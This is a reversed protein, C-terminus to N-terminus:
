HSLSMQFHLFEGKIKQYSRYPYPLSEGTDFIIREKSIQRIYKLNLILSAGCRIFYHYPSFVEFLELVTMRVELTNGEITHIIQYNNRGTETFVVDRPSLRTIGKSTKLMIADHREAHIRQIVKDLAAFLTEEKYPKILYQAADVEFAELAHEHSTTIFIIEVQDGLQRLEKAVDLGLMGSMYIDLLLVDCSGQQVAYSLFELPESFFYKKIEFQPNQVAYKVLLENTRILETQDDDCLAIKIM